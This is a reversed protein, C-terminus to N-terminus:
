KLKARLHHALNSKTWLRGEIERVQLVGYLSNSILVEEAQMFQSWDLEVTQVQLSLTHALGMIKQRMVGAVGCKTLSPTYLTDGFRVFINASTCEIVHGDQDLMLGDWYKPDSWEARALVNELRNLHKVGALLPQQSLQTKCVYLAVGEDFCANPYIPFESKILLRTPTTIAPPAYGRAGIGRTIIIKAVAIEDLQFLKHVDALIVEPSPCVIGLASCDAVLKQYHLPWDDPICDRVKMTRFVGDGYSLGRDLPSFCCDFMGDILYNRHNQM